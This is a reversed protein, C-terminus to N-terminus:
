DALATRTPRALTGLWATLDAKQQASLARGPPMQGSKVAQIALRVESASMAPKGSRFLTLDDGRSRATKADHCAVCSQAAAPGSHRAKASVEGVDARPMQQRQRPQQYPQQYAPPAPADYQTARQRPPPEYAPAPEEYQPGAPPPAQARQQKLAELEQRLKLVEVEQKLSDVQQKAATNTEPAYGAAYTPIYLPVAAYTAVVAQYPQYYTQQPYYYSGGTYCGSGDAGLAALALLALSALVRAMM